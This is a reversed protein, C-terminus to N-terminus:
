HSSSEDPTSDEAEEKTSRHFDRGWRLRVQDARTGEHLQRLDVALQAYDLQISESRLLTILARLHHLVAAASSATAVAQFRSRIADDRGTARALRRAAAGLSVGLRHTATTTSQQHLAYLTIAEHAAREFDTPGNEAHACQSLREPLAGITEAWVDPDSGPASTVARRLKALRALVYADRPEAFLRRQLGAVVDLVAKRLQDDLSV